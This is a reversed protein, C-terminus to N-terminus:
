SAEAKRNTKKLLECQRKTQDEINVAKGKLKDLEELIQAAIDELEKDNDEFQQLISKEEANLERDSDSDVEDYIDDRNIAM